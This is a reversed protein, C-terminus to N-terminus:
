VTPYPPTPPRPSMYVIAGSAENPYLAGVAVVKPGAVAASKITSGISGAVGSFPALSWTVGDRSAYVYLLGNSFGNDDRYFALFQSGTWLVTDFSANAVTQQVSWTTGNTSTIIKGGSSVGTYRGSGYALGKIQEPFSIGSTRATWTTGTPSTVLVGDTGAAVFLGNGWAVTSLSKTANSTRTTWTIGDASSRILGTATSTSGVAVFTSGSWAVADLRTSATSTVRSTWTTGNTSTQITSDDGVAVIVSASHALGRRAQLAADVYFPASWTIGDASTFGRGRNGVAIYTNQYYAVANLQNASKITTRSTWSDPLGTESTAIQGTNGVVVMRTGSWAAENYNVTDDLPFILGSTWSVGDLSTSVVSAFNQVAVYREGTWLISGPYGSFSVSSLAWTVGDDASRLVNNDLGVLIL